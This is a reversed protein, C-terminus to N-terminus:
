ASGATQKKHKSRPRPVLKCFPKAAPSPKRHAVSQPELDTIVTCHSNLARNLFSAGSLFLTKKFRAHFERQVTIIYRSVHHRPVCLANEQQSAMKYVPRSAGYFLFEM